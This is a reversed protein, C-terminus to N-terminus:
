QKDLLYKDTDDQIEMASVFDLRGRNANKMLWKEAKILNRIWDKDDCTRWEEELEKRILMLLFEREESM